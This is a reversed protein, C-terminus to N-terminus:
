IRLAQEPTALGPLCLKALRASFDRTLVERAHVNRLAPPWVIQKMPRLGFMEVTKQPLLHFLVGLRRTGTRPAVPFFTFTRVQFDKVWSLSNPLEVVGQPRL